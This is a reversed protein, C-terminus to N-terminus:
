AGGSAVLRPPFIAVCMETRIHTHTVVECRQPPTRATWASMKYAICVPAFILCVNITISHPCFAVASTPITFPRGLNQWEHRCNAFPVLMYGTDRYDTVLSNLNSAYWTCTCYTGTHTRWHRQLEDSRTFRKGCNQWECVYPKDGSHWRCCTCKYLMFFTMLM